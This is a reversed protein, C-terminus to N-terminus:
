LLNPSHYILKGDAIRAPSNYHHAKVRGLGMIYWVHWGNLKLYNLITALQCHRWVVESCMIVTCQVLALQELATIAQKFEVTEM